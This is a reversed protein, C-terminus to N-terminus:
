LIQIGSEAHSKIARAPTGAYMTSIESDQMLLSNAAVLTEPALHLQQLVTSQFGLFSNEGVVSYGGVLSRAALFSHAEIRSHHCITSGTNVFCNAELSAFPELIAGPLVMCNEGIQNSRDVIAKPSIYSALPFATAAAKEYLAKKVRMSKYGIAAFLHHNQPDYLRELEEFAVVPLGDIEDKKRYARDVCFAVVRYETDSEFYYKLLEAYNSDGYLILDM